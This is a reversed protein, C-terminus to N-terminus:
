PTVANHLTYGSRDSVTNESYSKNPDLLHQLHWEQLVTHTMEYGIM